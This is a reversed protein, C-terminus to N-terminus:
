RAHQLENGLIHHLIRWFPSLWNPRSGSQIRSRVFTRAAVRALATDQDFLECAQMEQAWNMRGSAEILARLIQEKEGASTVSLGIQAAAIACDLDEDYLYTRLEPWDHEAIGFESLLQLASRRRGSSTYGNITTNTCGRLLLIAFPQATAPMKRLEALADSRCFDDELLEFLLPISERRRFTGLAQVLGGTARQRAADLLVGYVQESQTQALEIAAVSRVADEAFLVAADRPSEHQIFYQILVSYAGLASLARVARCRPLAVTRPPTDLLFRELHPIARQGFAVVRWVVAEGAVLSDLDSIADEISRVPQLQQAGMM